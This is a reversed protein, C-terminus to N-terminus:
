RVRLTNPIDISDTDIRINQGEPGEGVPTSRDSDVKIWVNKVDNPILMKMVGRYGLAQALMEESRRSMFVSPNKLYEPLVVLMREYDGEAGKVLRTKEVEASRIITRVDGASKRLLDEVIESQAALEDALASDGGDGSSLALMIEFERDIAEALEGHGPGATQLMRAVGRARAMDIRQSKQQESTFVNDFADQTQKPPLIAELNLQKWAVVGGTDLLKLGLRTGAADFENLRRTLAKGVEQLFLDQQNGRIALADWRAATEIAANRALNKLLTYEPLQEHRARASVEETKEASMPYVNRLYDIVGDPSIHYRIKLSAHLINADGTLLYDDRDPSLTGFKMDIKGAAKEKESLELMFEIPLTRPQVDVKEVSDIPFPWSWNWGQGYVASASGRNVIDGFRYVVAREGPGVAFWGSLFYLVVLVFMILKLVGFSRRLANALESNAADFEDRPPESHPVQEHPHPHDSM